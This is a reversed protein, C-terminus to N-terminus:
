AQVGKPQLMRKRGCQFISGDEIYSKRWRDLANEIRRLGANEVHLEGIIVRLQARENKLADNEMRLEAAKAKWINLEDM